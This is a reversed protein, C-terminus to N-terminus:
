HNNCNSKIANIKFEKVFEVVKAITEPSPFIAGSELKKVKTEDFDLADGMEKVTLSMAKRTAKMFTAFSEYFNIMALGLETPPLLGKYEEENSNGTKGTESQM